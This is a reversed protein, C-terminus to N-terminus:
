ISASIKQKEMNEETEGYKPLSGLIEKLGEYDLSEKKL